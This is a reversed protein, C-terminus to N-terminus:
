FDQETSASDGGVNVTLNATYSSGGTKVQSTARAQAPGAASEDARTITLAPTTASGQIAYQYPSRVGSIKDSGQSITYYDMRFGIEVLANSGYM